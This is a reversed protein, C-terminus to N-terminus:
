RGLILEARYVCRIVCVTFTVPPRFFNRRCRTGDFPQLTVVKLPHQQISFASAHSILNCDCFMGLWSDVSPPNGRLTPVMCLGVQSTIEQVDLVSVM